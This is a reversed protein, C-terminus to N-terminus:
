LRGGKLLHVGLQMAEDILRNQNEDDTKQDQLLKIYRGIVMSDSYNMMEKESIVFKTEDAINVHYFMESLGNLLDERHIDSDVSRFGTLKLNLIATKNSKTKFFELVGQLSKLQTLDIQMALISKSGVKVPEIKAKQGETLTAIIM